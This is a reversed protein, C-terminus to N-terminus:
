RTIVPPFIKWNSMMVNFKIKVRLKVILNILNLKLFLFIIKKDLVRFNNLLNNTSNNIQFILLKQKLINRM